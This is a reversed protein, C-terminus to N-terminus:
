RQNYNQKSLFCWAWIYPYYFFYYGFTSVYTIYFTYNYLVANFVINVWKEIIWVALIVWRNESFHKKKDYIKDDNWILSRKKIILM